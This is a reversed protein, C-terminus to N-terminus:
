LVHISITSYLMLRYMADSYGFVRINTMTLHVSCILDFLITRVHM